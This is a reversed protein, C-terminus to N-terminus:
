DCGHALPGLYDYMHVWVNAGFKTGAVVPLAQHMMRSDEYLPQANYVSPWLVARGKKPMVTIGLDPFDTGGGAEVDSLYL